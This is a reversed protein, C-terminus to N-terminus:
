ARRQLAGPRVDITPQESGLTRTLPPREQEKLPPLAAVVAFTAWWWMSIGFNRLLYTDFLFGVLTALMASMVVMRALNTRSQWWMMVLCVGIVLGLAAGILGLEVLMALPTSHPTLLVRMSEDAFAGYSGGPMPYLGSEYAWWPWVQGPGTGFLMTQDSSSWIELATKINQSRKADEFSVLRSMGPLFPLLLVSLGMAAGVPWLRRTARPRRVLWAVSIIGLWLAVTVFGGRSQTALLMLLGGASAALSLRPRRGRLFQALGLAAILLFIIHVIAAGGQGTALRTYGRYAAQFPWGVLAVIIAAVGGAVLIRLRLRREASLVFGLGAAVAFLSSLLPVAIFMKPVPGGDPGPVIPEPRVLLSFFAYLIIAVFALAAIQAPRALEHRRPWWWPSTTAAVIGYVIVDFTLWPVGPVPFAFQLAQALAVFPVFGWAVKNGLTRRDATIANTM